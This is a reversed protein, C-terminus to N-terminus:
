PHKRETTKPRIELLKWVQDRQRLSFTWDAKGIEYTIKVVVRTTQGTTEPAQMERSQISGLAVASIPDVKDQMGNWDDIATLAFPAAYNSVKYFGGCAAARSPSCNPPNRAAAKALVFSEM